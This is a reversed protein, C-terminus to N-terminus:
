VVVEEAPAFQVTVAIIRLPESEEGTSRELEHVLSSLVRVDDVAVVPLCTQHRHQEVFHILAQAHSMRADAVGQVVDTMLADRTFLNKPLDPEIRVPQHCRFSQQVVCGCAM